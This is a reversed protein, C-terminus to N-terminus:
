SLYDKILDRAEEITVLGGAVADNLASVYKGFAEAKEKESKQLCALHSFDFYFSYGNKASDFINDFCEAIIGALPIISDEYFETKGELYTNYKNEDKLGFVTAPVNYARLISRIDSDEGDLLGLDKPNRTIQQVKTPVKLIAAHWLGKIAGYRSYATQIDKVEQNNLFTANVGKDNSAEPSFVVDAGRKVIIQNRSELSAIINQVPYKLGQIRSYPRLGDRLSVTRDRVEAILRTDDGRFKWVNGFLSVTYSEVIGEGGLVDAYSKYQVSMCPNPIIILGSLGFGVSEVKYIYCVGFVDIYTSINSIFQSYSEYRNPRSLLKMAKDFGASKIYNEEKDVPLLKGQLLGQSRKGIVQQLPPCLLYAFSLSTDDSNLVFSYDSVGEIYEVGTEITRDSFLAKIAKRVNM